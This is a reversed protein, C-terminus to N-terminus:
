WSHVQCAGIPFVKWAGSFNPRSFSAAFYNTTSEEGLGTQREWKRLCTRCKGSYFEGARLCAAAPPFASSGRSMGTWLFSKVHPKCAFSGVISFRM